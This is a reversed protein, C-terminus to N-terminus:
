GQILALSSNPFHDKLRPNLALERLRDMLEDMCGKRPAFKQEMKVILDGLERIIEGSCYILAGNRIYVRSTKHIKTKTM